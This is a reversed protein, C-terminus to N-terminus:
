AIKVLCCAGTPYVPVSLGAAGHRCWSVEICCFSEITGAPATAVGALTQQALAGPGVGAWPQINNIRTRWSQGGPSYQLYAASGIQGVIEVDLAFPAFNFIEIVHSAPRGRVPGAGSASLNVYVDIDLWPPIAFM